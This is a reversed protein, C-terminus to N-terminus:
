FEYAGSFGAEVYGLSRNEDVNYLLYHARLRATLSLGGGFRWSTGALLGPSFASYSQDALTADDFARRLLLLALRAGAFTVLAGDGWRREYWLSAGTTLERFRFPLTASPRELTARAAGAAVDLAFVVDHRFFGAVALEGGFLSVPPFLSDRTPADFFGQGGAGLGVRWRVDSPRVGKVPDDAFAADRLRAEDLTILAGPPIDIEGIRLRDALRRKIRYRGSRVAIRRDAGPEKVVEAAVTGRADILYYTGAPAPAPVYLGEHQSVYDTLVLDGNGKLDYSFTPHQAGAMSDATDAVTRAYAYDYAEALTVRGDRSRDADGQLASVLHHSFYSGALADSEQADEDFSSSTLFVTGRAADPRTADIAFAPAHRAGKSRTLAGSRCSDIIAIRVEAPSRAIRARLTELSLRTGGLRLDGDKAHGSFYVLLSARSQGAEARMREELGDLAALFQGVSANALLPADEARVGGLRVLVERLRRADEVAYLLPRTDEGGHDNGLLLAYRHLPPEAHTTAARATLLALVAVTRAAAGRASRNM